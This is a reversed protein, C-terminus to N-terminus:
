LCFATQDYYKSLLVVFLQIQDWNEGIELLFVPQYLYFILNLGIKSMTWVFNQRIYTIQHFQWFFQIQVWNEYIVILIRDSRLMRIFNGCLVPNWCLKWMPIRLLISKSIILLFVQNSRLKWIKWVFYQRINIILYFKWLYRSKVKIKM